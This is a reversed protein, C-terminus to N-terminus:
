RLPVSSLPTEGIFPVVTVMVFDNSAFPAERNGLGLLGMSITQPLTWNAGVINGTGIQVNKLMSLLQLADSGLAPNSGLQNAIDDMANGSRIATALNRSSEVLSILETLNSVPLKAVIVTVPLSSMNATSSSGDPQTPERSLTASLDTDGINIGSIKIGDIMSIGLVNSLSAIRQGGLDRDATQSRNAATAAATTIERGVGQTTNDQINGRDSTMNGQLNKVAGMMTQGFELLAALENTVQTVNMTQMRDAMAGLEPHNTKMETMREKMNDSIHEGLKPLTANQAEAYKLPILAVTAMLTIALAVAVFECKVKRNTM